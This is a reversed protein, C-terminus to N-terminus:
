AAVVAVEDGIYRVKDGALIPEDKIPSYLRNLQIGIVDKGTIIAKVGKLREARTTDINLINAHPYPSRLIKAYLVRPLVLDGTFRAEGTVKAVGDIRPTPKGVVSYGKVRKVRRHQSFIGRSTWGWSKPGNFLLYDQRLIGDGFSTTNM